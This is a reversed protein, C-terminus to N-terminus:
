ARSQRIEDLRRNLAEQVGTRSFGSKAKTTGHNTKLEFLGKWRNSISQNIIEKAVQPDGNALKFLNDIAAQETKPSKYKERHEEKKYQKWGEWATFNKGFPNIVEEKEKVKEEEKEEEEEEQLTNSVRDSLTNLLTNIDLNNKEVISLIKRHVPSAPNLKEGYQFEIFGCCFIKGEDLKIFQKGSDISLLDKETVKEGIYMDALKWNPSWFGAMDCKDRVYKVLCKLKPKLAMFWEKDWLETDTFRKAM